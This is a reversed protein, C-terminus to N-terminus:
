SNTHPQSSSSIKGIFRNRSKTGIRLRYDIRRCSPHSTRSVYTEMIHEILGDYTWGDDVGISTLTESDQLTSASPNDCHQCYWAPTHVFESSAITRERAKVANAEASDLLRWSPIPSGNTLSPTHMSVDHEVKDPSFVSDTSLIVIPYQYYLSM